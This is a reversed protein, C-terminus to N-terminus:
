KDKKPATPNLDKKLKSNINLKPTMNPIKTPEESIIPMRTTTLPSPAPGRYAM